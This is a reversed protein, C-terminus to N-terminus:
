SSLTVAVMFHWLDGETWELQRYISSRGLSFVVPGESVLGLLNMKMWYKRRGPVGSQSSLM